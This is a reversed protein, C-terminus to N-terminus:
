PHHLELLHTHALHGGRHAKGLFPTDGEQEGSVLLQHHNAEYM